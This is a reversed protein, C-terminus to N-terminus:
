RCRHGVSDLPQQALISTTHRLQGGRRNGFEVNARDKRGEVVSVAYQGAGLSRGGLSRPLMRTSGGCGMPAEAQGLTRVEEDDTGGFRARCRQVVIEVAM